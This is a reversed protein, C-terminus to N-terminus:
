QYKERVERCFWHYRRLFWLWSDRPGIPLACWRCYGRPADPAVDKLIM